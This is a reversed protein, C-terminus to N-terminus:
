KSKYYYPQIYLESLSEEGILENGHLRQTYLSYVYDYYRMKNAM